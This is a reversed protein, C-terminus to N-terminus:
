LAKDGYSWTSLSELFKDMEQLKPVLLTKSAELSLKNPFEARFKKILSTAPVLSSYNPDLDKTAGYLRAIGMSGLFDLIDADRFALAFTGQPVPGYYTHGLILEKVQPIKEFPFGFEPLKQDALEASRVAHDVGEVTFEEMGGLDHMFSAAFLIEEDFNEHSLELIAKALQYDRESHALGWAPHKLHEKSFNYLALKWPSNLPIKTLTTEGDAFALMSAFFFACNIIYKV